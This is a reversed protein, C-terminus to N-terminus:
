FESVQVARFALQPDRTAGLAMARPLRTAGNLIYGVGGEFDASALLPVKSERQFRNLLAAAAYPDGKRSASPGGYNADLLLQPMPEAGGFTHFGGVHLQRVLRIRKEFVDSDASTFVANFSPFLLQGIKEDLTMVKLTQAVWTEAAKDLPAGPAAGADATELSARRAHSRLPAITALGVVVSAVVVAKWSRVDHKRM